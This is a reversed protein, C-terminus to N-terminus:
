DGRRSVRILSSIESPGMRRERRRAGACDGDVDFEEFVRDIESVEDFFDFGLAQIARRFEKKDIEGSGDEDWQRLLRLPGPLLRPM